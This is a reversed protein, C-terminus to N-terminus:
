LLSRKVIQMDSSSRGSKEDIVRVKYKSTEDEQIIEEKVEAFVKFMAKAVASSAGDSMTADYSEKKEGGGGEKGFMKARVAAQEPATLNSNSM